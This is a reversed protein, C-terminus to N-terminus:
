ECHRTLIMLQWIPYLIILKTYELIEQRLEEDDLPYVEPMVDYYSMEDENLTKILEV